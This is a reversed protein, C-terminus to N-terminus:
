PTSNDDAKYIAKSLLELKYSGLTCKGKDSSVYYVVKRRAILKNTFFISSSESCPIIHMCSM